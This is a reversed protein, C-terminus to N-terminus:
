DTLEAVFKEAGYRLAVLREASERLAQAAQEVRVVAEEGSRSGGVIQALAAAHQQLDEARALLHTQLLEAAAGIERGADTLDELISM